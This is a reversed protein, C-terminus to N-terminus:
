CTLEERLVARWPAPADIRLVAASITVGPGVGLMLFHDGPRLEGTSVLHELSVIQDSPGLHGLARGFEWTSRSM